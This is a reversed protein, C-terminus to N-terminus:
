PASPGPGQDGIVLTVIEQYPRKVRDDRGPRRCQAGRKAMQIPLGEEGCTAGSGSSSWKLKYPLNCAASSNVGVLSAGGDLGSIGKSAICQRSAWFRATVLVFFSTTLAFFSTM